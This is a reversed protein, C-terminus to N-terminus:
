AQNAAVQVALVFGDRWDPSKGPNTLALVRPHTQKLMAKRSWGADLARSAFLEGQVFGALNEASQRGGGM